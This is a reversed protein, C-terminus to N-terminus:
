GIRVGRPVRHAPTRLRRVTLAMAGSALLLDFGLGYPWIRIGQDADVGGRADPPIRLRRTVVGLLSLPDDAPVSDFSGASTQSPLRPASDALIVFPNPALLWWIRDPRNVTGSAVRDSTLPLAVAFAILTGASLAFVALYSLLASTIGRALLASMAESIACVVGMLLASVGLVGAVRGVTLDGEAMAWVVFPLALALAVLGVTWGALLKGLAIQAPSLRTIQLTALTGRERDGNVVQATLVPSIVLVLGLVFLMLIGFLAPGRHRHVGSAALARDVLVTFAALVLVWAVLLWRWRGTRLRIRFEQAAVLLAGRALHEIM